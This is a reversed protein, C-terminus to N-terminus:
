RQDRRKHHHQAFDHGARGGVEEEQVGRELRGPDILMAVAMVIVRCWAICTPRRTAPRVKQVKAAKAGGGGSLLGGVVGKKGAKKSPAQLTLLSCPKCVLYMAPCVMAAIGPSRSSPRLHHPRRQDGLSPAPSAPHRYLCSAWLSSHLVSSPSLHIHSQIPQLSTCRHPIVVCLVSRGAVLPILNWVTGYGGLM